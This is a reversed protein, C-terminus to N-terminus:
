PYPGTGQCIRGQWYGYGAGQKELERPEVQGEQAVQQVGLRQGDGVQENDASQRAQTIGGHPQVTDHVAVFAGLCWIM